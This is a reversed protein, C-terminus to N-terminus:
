SIPNLRKKNLRSILILLFGLFILFVLIALIYTIMGVVGGVGTPDIFWYPWWGTALGRVVSFAIWTLPYVTVWLADRLKLKIPGQILLWGLFIALPAWVHIVENPLVPWAYDGDRIDNASGRLLANYAISVVLYCATATLRSIVQLRSETRGSFVTRGTWILIFAAIISTQISVFAFYETPRFLGNALRDTVQWAVSALIALAVAFRAIGILKNMAVSKM